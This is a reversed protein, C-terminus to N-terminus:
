QFYRYSSRYTRCKSSIMEVNSQNGYKLDIYINRICFSLKNKKKKKKKWYSLIFNTSLVNEGISTFDVPTSNNVIPIRVYTYPVNRNFLCMIFPLSNQIMSVDATNDFIMIISLLSQYYLVCRTTPRANNKEEEEVGGVGERYEEKELKKGKKEKRM